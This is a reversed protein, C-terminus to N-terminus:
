EKESPVNRDGCSCKFGYRNELQQHRKDQSVNSYPRVLNGVYSITVEEAPAIDQTTYVLLEGSSLYAIEANPACAHNLLSFARFVACGTSPPFDQTSLEVPPRTPNEHPDQAYWLVRATEDEETESDSVEYSDEFEPEAISSEDDDSEEEEEQDHSQSNRVALFQQTLYTRADRPLTVHPDESLEFLYPILPSPISLAVANCQIITLMKILVQKQFVHQPFITEDAAVLTATFLHYFHDRQYEPCCLNQSGGQAQKPKVKREFTSYWDLIGLTSTWNQNMQTHYLFLLEQLFSLTLKLHPHWELSCLSKWETSFKSSNVFYKQRHSWREHCLPSCTRSSSSEHTNVIAKLSPLSSPPLIDKLPLYDSVKGMFGGSIPCITANRGEEEEDCTAFLPCKERLIVQGVEIAKAAYLGRGCQDTSKITVFENDNLGFFSEETLM